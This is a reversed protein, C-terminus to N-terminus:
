ESFEIKASVRMGEDWKFADDTEKNKKVESKRLEPYFVYIIEDM